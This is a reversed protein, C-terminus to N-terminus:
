TLKSLKYEIQKELTTSTYLGVIYVNFSKTRDRSMTNRWKLKM